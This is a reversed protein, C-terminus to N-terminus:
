SGFAVFIFIAGLILAAVSLKAGIECWRAIAAFWREPVIGTLLWRIVIASLALGVCLVAFAILM